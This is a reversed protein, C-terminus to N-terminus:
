RLWVRKGEYIYIIRNAIKGAIDGIRQLTRAIDLLLIADDFSRPDQHVYAVLRGYIDSYLDNIEHGKERIREQPPSRGKLIAEINMDLMEVAIKNMASLRDSPKLLPKPLGRRCQESIEVSHDAVREFRQAIGITGAFFRFDEKSLERTMLAALCLEEIEVNLYDTKREIQDIEEFHGADRELLSKVSIELSRVAERGLEELKKLVLDHKKINEM